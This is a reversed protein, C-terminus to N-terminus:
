PGVHEVCQSQSSMELISGCMRLQKRSSSSSRAKWFFLLHRQTRHTAWRWSPSYRLVFVTSALSESTSHEVGGKRWQWQQCGNVQEPASSERDGNSGALRLSCFCLGAIGSEAMMPALARPADRRRMSEEMWGAVSPRGIRVGDSRDGDEEFIRRLPETWLFALVTHVRQWKM